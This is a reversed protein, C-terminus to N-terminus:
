IAGSRVRNGAFTRAHPAMLGDCPADGAECMHGSQEGRHIVIGHADFM